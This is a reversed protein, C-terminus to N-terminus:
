ADHHNFALELVQDVMNSRLAMALSAGRENDLAQLFFEGREPGRNRRNSGSNM